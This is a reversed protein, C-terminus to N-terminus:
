AVWWFVCFLSFAWSLSHYPVASSKFANNFLARSSMSVPPRQMSSGQLVAGLPGQLLSSGSSALQSKWLAFISEATPESTRSNGPLIELEVIVHQDAMAEFNSLSHLRLDRHVNGMSKALAQANSQNVPVRIYEGRIGLLQLRNQSLKGATCLKNQVADLFSSLPGMHSDQISGLSTPIRLELIVHTSSPALGADAMMKKNPQEAKATEDKADDKHRVERAPSMPNSPAGLPSPAGKQSPGGLIPKQPDFFNPVPYEPFKTQNRQRSRSILTQEHGGGIGTTSTLLKSFVTVLLVRLIGTYSM